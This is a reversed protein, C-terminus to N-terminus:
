VLCNFRKGFLTGLVVDEVGVDNPGDESLKRDM